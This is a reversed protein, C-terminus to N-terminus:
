PTKSCACVYNLQLLFFFLYFDSLLLIQLMTNHGYVVVLCSKRKYEVKKVLGRSNKMERLEICVDRQIERKWIERGVSEREYM